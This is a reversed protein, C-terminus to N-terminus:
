GNALIQRVEAWDLRSIESPSMRRLMDATLPRGNVSAGAGADISAAAGSSNFQEPFSKKLHAVLASINAPKGEEDFQIEARISNFLLEPSIAGYRGLEALMGEQATKLRAAHKLEENERRLAEIEIDTKTGIAAPAEQGVGDDSNETTSTLLENM